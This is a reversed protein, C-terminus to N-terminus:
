VLEDFASAQVSESASFEAEAGCKSCSVKGSVEVGYLTKMYRSSKIPKGNRDTTQMETSPTAEADVDWDHTEGDKCAEDKLADVAIDFEIDASKLETGCEGCTLTRTYTGTLRAGDFDLEGEPDVDTDYPVFKQCDPCRM